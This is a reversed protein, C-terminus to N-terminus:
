GCCEFPDGIHGARHSRQHFSSEPSLQFPFATRANTNNQYSGQPIISWRRIPLSSSRRLAQGVRRRAADIKQEESDSAPEQWHAFRSEWETRSRPKRTLDALAEALLSAGFPRPSPVGFLGSMNAVETAQGFSVPLAAEGAANRNV